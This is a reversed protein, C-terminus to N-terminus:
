TELSAVLSHYVVSDLISSTSSSESYEDASDEDQVHSRYQLGCPQSSFLHMPSPQKLVFPSISDNLLKQEETLNRNFTTSHTIEHRSVDFDKDSFFSSAFALHFQVPNSSLDPHASQDDYRVVTEGNLLSASYDVGFSPDRIQPKLLNSNASESQWSNHGENQYAFNVHVSSTSADSHCAVSMAVDKQLRKVTNNILVSRRLYSEPDEVRRIKAMSIRLLRRREEKWKSRPVFLVPSNPIIEEFSDDDEEEDSSDWTFMNGGDSEREIWDMQEYIEDEEDDSAEDDIVLNAKAAVRQLLKKRQMKCYREDYEGKECDLIKRKQSPSVSDLSYLSSLEDTLCSVEAGNPNQITKLITPAQLSGTSWITYSSSCNTEVGKSNVFRM